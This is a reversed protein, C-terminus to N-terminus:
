LLRIITQQEISSEVHSVSVATNRSKSLQQEIDQEVERKCQNFDVHESNVVECIIIQEHSNSNLM